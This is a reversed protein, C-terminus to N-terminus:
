RKGTKIILACAFEKNLCYVDDICKKIRSYKSQGISEVIIINKSNKVCNIMKVNNMSSVFEVSIDRKVLAAKLSELIGTDMQAMDSSIFLVDNSDDVLCAAIKETSIYIMDSDIGSLVEVVRIGNMEWLDYVYM